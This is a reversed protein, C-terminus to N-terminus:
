FLLTQGSLSEGNDLGSYQFNEIKVVQSFDITKMIYVRHSLPKYLTVCTCHM